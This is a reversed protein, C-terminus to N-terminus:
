ISRQEAASRTELNSHSSFLKRLVSTFPPLIIEGLEGKKRESNSLKQAAVNM